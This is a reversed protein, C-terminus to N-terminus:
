VMSSGEPTRRVQRIEVPGLQSFSGELPTRVIAWAGTLERQRREIVNNRPSQRKAPLEILGRRHLQLMFSRCVMDRLQGNPQVWNWARCLLASLRRRSTNPHAAILQRIEDIDAAKVRRGRYCLLVDSM